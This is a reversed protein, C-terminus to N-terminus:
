STRLSGVLYRTVKEQTGQEVEQRAKQQHGHTLRYIGLRGFCHNRDSRCGCLCLRRSSGSIESLPQIGHSENDNM